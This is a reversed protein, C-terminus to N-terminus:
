GSVKARYDRHAPTDHIYLEVFRQGVDVRQQVGFAPFYGDLDQSLKVGMAHTSDGQGISLAEDAATNNLVCAPLQLRRDALSNERPHEVNESGGNVSFGWRCIDLPAGNM